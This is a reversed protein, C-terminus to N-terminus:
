YVGGLKIKASPAARNPQRIHKGFRASYIFQPSHQIESTNRVHYNIKQISAFKCVNKGYNEPSM